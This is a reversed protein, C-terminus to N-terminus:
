MQGEAWASVPAATQGRTTTTTPMDKPCYCHLYTVEASM